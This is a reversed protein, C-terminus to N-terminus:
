KDKMTSNLCRDLVKQYKETENFNPQLIEQATLDTKIGNIICDCYLDVDNTKEIDSGILEEKMKKKIGEAMRPTITFKATTDNTTALSACEQYHNAM